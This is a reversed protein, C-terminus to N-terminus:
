QTGHWTGAAGVVAAALRHTNIRTRVV